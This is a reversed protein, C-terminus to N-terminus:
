LHVTGFYYDTVDPPPTTPYIGYGQGSGHLTAYAGTGDTITWNFNDGNKNLRVQLKVDFTGSGDACTFRKLSTFNVGQGTQGNNPAVKEGLDVTDGAPCMLGIDVALGAAQFPGGGPMFSEAVVFGVGVPPPPKASGGAALLALAVVGLLVVVTLRRM